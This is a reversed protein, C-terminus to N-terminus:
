ALPPRREILCKDWSARTHNRFFVGFSHGGYWEVIASRIASGRLNELSAIDFQTTASDDITSIQRYVDQKGWQKDGIHSHGYFHSVHQEPFPLLMAQLTGEGDRNGGPFGYHSFSFFPKDIAALQKRVVEADAEFDHPSMECGAVDQAGCHTTVWTPDKPDCRDSLFFLVLDGLDSTFTWDLPSETTHWQPERIIRERMPITLDGPTGNWRHFDFEHNGMVYFVPADVRALERVQMDAMEELHAKNRGETSDGLYCAGDIDLGLSIFDEVGTHMCREANVPDSQQLDSFVWFRHIPEPSFNSFVSHFKM